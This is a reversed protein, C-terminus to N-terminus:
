LIVLTDDSKGLGTLAIDAFYANGVEGPADSGMGLVIRDFTGQHISGVDIEFTKYGSGIEYEGGSHGWQQTGAFQFFLDNDLGTDCDLGIGQIEGEADSRFRVSLM